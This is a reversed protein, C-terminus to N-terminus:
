NLRVIKLNHQGTGVAATLSNTLNGISIYATQGSNMQVFTNGYLSISATGSAGNGSYPATTIAVETETASNVVIRGTIGNNNANTTTYMNSFM